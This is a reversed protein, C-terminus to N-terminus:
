RHFIKSFVQNMAPQFQMALSEAFDQGNTVNPLSIDGFSMQIVAGSGSAGLALASRFNDLMTSQQQRNMVGEGLHLIAPFEDPNLKRLGLAQIAKFKDSSTMNGVSGKELGQAFYYAGSDSDYYGGSGHSGGGYYHDEDWHSSPGDWSYNGDDDDDDDDYWKKVTDGIFDILKYQEYLQQRTEDYWAKFDAWNTEYESLADRNDQATYLNERFFDLQNNREESAGRLAAGLNSYDGMTLTNELREQGTILGDSILSNLVSIKANMEDATIKEQQFDEVYQTLTDTIFNNLDIQRQTDRM